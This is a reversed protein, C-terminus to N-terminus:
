CSSLIFSVLWRQRTKQCCQLRQRTKQACQHCITRPTTIRTVFCLVTIIFGRQKLWLLYYEFSSLLNSMCGWLFYVPRYEEGQLEQHPRSSGSSSDARQLHQMPSKAHKWIRKGRTTIPYHWNRGTFPCHVTYVKWEWESRKATAWLIWRLWSSHRTIQTAWGWRYIFFCTLELFFRHFGEVTM